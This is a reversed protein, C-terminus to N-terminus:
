QGVMGSGGGSPWLDGHDAYSRAHDQRRRSPGSDRVMGPAGEVVGARDDVPMADPRSAQKDHRCKCRGVVCRAALATRRTVEQAAPPHTPLCARLQPEIRYILGSQRDLGVGDIVNGNMAVLPATNIARAVPMASEAASMDMLADIFPRQLAAEYPPSRGTGATEFRVYREILMGAGVPTLRAIVPEAPAPLMQKGNLAPDANSGTATLLHLGWPAVTRVEVINGTADRIPPEESSDSALAEDVVNIVPTRAGNSPPLPQTLRCDGAVVEDHEAKRRAADLRAQEAKLRAQISRVGTKTKAATVAILRVMEDAEIQAQGVMTCLVDVVHHPDAADLAAGVTRADHCLRYFAQGHAFSNIVVGQPDNKSRMVMAKGRGYRAGELPDSLTEGIFKDPDALVDKVSAPESHDFDLMIHPLLKGNHRATVVRMAAVNPLGTRNCIDEALRRDAAARIEAARPELALRAQEKAAHARAQEYDTLTPVAIRTDIADGEHAVPARAHDDQVLPPVVEPAGEFCLREGFRVSSDIISRDLLQGSAGILYWGFGHLWCLDHLAKLARDIDAGDAVLIYHHEGGSHPLHDSTDTRRLGASTSARTVRAARALGPVVSLLAHWMGGQDSIAAAVTAPMGKRDFDCLMWAPGPRYDIYMRSRAIVPQGDPTTREKMKALMRATVIRAEVDREITGLALANDSGLSAIVRAFDAGTAVPVVKASGIAMRCPAGDSVIQDDVLTIRKSLLAGTPDNDVPLKTFVTIQATSM